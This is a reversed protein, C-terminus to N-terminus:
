RSTFTTTATLGIEARGSFGTQYLQSATDGATAKNIKQQHGAGAHNFLSAASSLALRNTTDATANIGVLPTPNVSASGGGTVAVWAGGDYGVLSNEDAVWALWGEIPVHFEWAGDQWVAVHDAHSAWTGSASPGVIFRDGEAPSTPPSSLDRDVVTLQVITDLKRLAENHTVHKQSQAAMIYPLSLNPTQDSM